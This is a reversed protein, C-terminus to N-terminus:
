KAGTAVVGREIMKVLEDKPLWKGGVCVADIKTTNRIDELPNATLLVLDARKGKEVSGWEKSAGLFQAPTKTAAALAQYPTLGAAVLNELERHLTFGYGLFWEPTDSGAMIKGGLDHIRKVIKNRIEVYRKRRAESPPNAWYRHHARLYMAKHDAPQLKWDPRAQMEEDSQGLAAALKFLTLTPTTYTGSRATENAIEEIKAEDVRDITEWNKLRFVGFDSVSDRSPADDSLVSEMYNDLHEIHQGAALARKVTVRPDVHGAVPLKQAKAEAVVADFVEPTIQTTFKIFDYGAAAVEKVAATAEAANTVTKANSEKRGIFQPSAVWLQPGTFEGAEIQKRMALHTPTGIMLRTTTVGNALMVGLETPGADKLAEDDDSFLHTHMDALGPILFKGTGDILQADKPVDVKAGIAAIRGDRVLVTVDKLVTERTMPIVNVHSIAITGKALATRSIRNRVLGFGQSHAIPPFMSVAISAM